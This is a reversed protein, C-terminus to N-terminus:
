QGQCQMTGCAQNGHVKPTLWTADYANVTLTCGTQTPVYQCAVSAPSFKFWLRINVVHERLVPAHDIWSQNQRIHGMMVQQGTDLYATFLLTSATHNTIRLPHIAAIKKMAASIPTSVGLILVTACSLAFHTYRCIMTYTSLILHQRPHLQPFTQNPQRFETHHHM